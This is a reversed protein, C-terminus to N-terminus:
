LSWTTAPLQCQLSLRGQGGARWRDATSGLEGVAVIESSRASWVVSKDLESGGDPGVRKDVAESSSIGGVRQSADGQDSDYGLVVGNRVGIAVQYDGATVFSPLVCVCQLPKPKCPM